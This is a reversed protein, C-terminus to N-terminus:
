WCDARFAIFNFNIGTQLEIENFLLLSRGIDLCTSPLKEPKNAAEEFSYLFSLGIRHVLM